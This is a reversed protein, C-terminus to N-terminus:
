ARAIEAAPEKGLKILARVFWVVSVPVTILAIIMNTAIRADAALAAAYIGSAILPMLGLAAYHSWGVRGSSTRSIAAPAASDRHRRLARYILVLLPPLILAAFPIAIVVFVFILGHLGAIIRVEWRGPHFDLPELRNLTRYAPILPLSTGFAFLAFWGAGIMTQEQWVWIAWVGWFVGILAALRASQRPSGSHQACRVLYVGVVVDILAHWSLGTFAVQFPFAAYMTQVVVGELLWGYVAGALFLAGLNRVRFAFLITLLVWAEISYAIWMPLIGWVDFRPYVNVFLFESFFMLVYGMALAAIWRRRM